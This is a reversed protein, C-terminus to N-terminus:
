LKLHELLYFAFIMGEIITPDIGFKKKKETIWEASFSEPKIM